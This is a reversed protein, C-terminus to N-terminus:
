EFNLVLTIMRSTGRSIANTYKRISNDTIDSRDREILDVLGFSFRIEPSMKVIPLYFDCGIGITLGFDWPKLLVPEGKEGALDLAAYAGAVVYPRYNNVRVSRIKLDLPATIYNSRLVTKFSQNLTPEVFEYAKDGFHLNPTFRLNMYPNLYLDALLGVSFGPSYNPITAFWTEGEESVVGSNTMLLDQFNMGVTIGFHYLKQDGYPQNRVKQRQASLSGSLLCLTLLIYCGKKM